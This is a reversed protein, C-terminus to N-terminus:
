NPNEGFVKALTAEFFESFEDEPLMAIKKFKLKNQEEETLDKFPLVRLKEYEEDPLFTSESM